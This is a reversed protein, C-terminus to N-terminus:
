VGRCAGCFNDQLTKNVVTAAQKKYTKEDLVFGGFTLITVPFRLGKSNPDEWFVDCLSGAEVDDGAIEVKGISFLCKIGDETFKM